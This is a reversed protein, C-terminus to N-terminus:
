KSLIKSSVPYIERSSKIKTLERPSVNRLTYEEQSNGTVAFKLLRAAV